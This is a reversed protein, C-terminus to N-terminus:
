NKPPSIKLINSYAHKRLAKADIAIRFAGLSSESRVTFACASRFTRRACMDSSVNESM